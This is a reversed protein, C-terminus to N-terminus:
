VLHLLEMYRPKVLDNHSWGTLSSLQTTHDPSRINPRWDPPITKRWCESM